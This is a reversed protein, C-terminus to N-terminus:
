GSRYLTNDDNVVAILSGANKVGVSRKVRGALHGSGIILVDGKQM